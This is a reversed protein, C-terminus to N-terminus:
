LVGGVLPEVYTITYGADKHIELTDGKFKLDKKFEWTDKLDKYAEEKLLKKSESIAIFENLFAGVYEDYRELIYM